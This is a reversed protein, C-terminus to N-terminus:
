EHTYERIVVAANMGGFGASLCLASPIELERPLSSVAIPEEVGHSSYHATPPVKRRRIIEAALVVELLSGAGSTHGIAGKFSVCPPCADGFMRYIAKAEMADNYMTATGHCKVFGIQHNKLQAGRMATAAAAHLGDGTRSPGTRHNADNSSGTGAILIDGKRPTRRSLIAFVASDGLSLGDRSADFPRAGTSSLAQLADFGTLVFKSICDFGFLIVRDAQGVELLETAVELAIAGSACANSITLCRTPRIGTVACVEEAQAHLFPSIQQLLKSSNGTNFFSLDGKAACFLFPTRDNKKGFCSMDLQGTLDHCAHRIDRLAEDSFPACASSVGFFPGPM